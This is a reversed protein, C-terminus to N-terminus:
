DCHLNAEVWRCQLSCLSPSSPTGPPSSTRCPPGRWPTGASREWSARGSRRRAWVAQMCLTAHYPTLTSHSNSADLHSASTGLFPFDFSNQYAGVVDPPLEQETPLPRSSDLLEMVEHADSQGYFEQHTLLEFCIMGFAWVDASPDAAFRKDGRRYARITEPAGYKLTFSM